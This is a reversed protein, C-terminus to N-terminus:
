ANNVERNVTLIRSIARKLERIKGPNRVAAGIDINARDKSLELKLENLKKDRNKKNMERIEKIKLISM